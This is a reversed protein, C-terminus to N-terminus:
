QYITGRPKIGYPKTALIGLKWGPPEPEIERFPFKIEIWECYIAKEAAHTIKLDYKTLISALTSFITHAMQESLIEKATWFILM